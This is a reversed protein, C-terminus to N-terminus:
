NNYWEPRLFKNDIIYDSYNDFIYKEFYSKSVIQKQLTTLENLAINSARTTFKCYYLYADYISINSYVPNSSVDNSEFSNYQMQIHEKMNELAVQIDMQKDWLTCRIGSIFKDREVEVTPHYYYILDLLQKDNYNNSLENNMECWKKYLIVLEEIEFDSETEDVIITENWFQLFRQISPLYKSCVGQFTDNNENYYTQLKYIVMTKLQNMFIVSPLQKNELFQKWLYQMNKWTIQTTRSPIGELSNIFLPQPPSNQLPTHTEDIYESIFENVLDRPVTNKVSFVSTKLEDDNCHSEAYEDSSNYRNSYHCAVCLIDIMSTKLLNSWTSENKISENMQLVRFDKYDHDHYKYKFTQSLQLGVLMVSLNNMHRIFHKAHPTIFHILHTYKKLLNDGIVCLFYKAECRTKFVQGILGDLVYQITDSEPISNLLYNDKIRKMVSIKTKHKWSMLQRDRSISTLVHHLIDDESYIKYHLGDYIFFNTTTAVYFYQNSNLFSHIFTDQENTLEEMRAVRQEHAQKMNVLINPLQNCIYSHLKPHMYADNEYLDYLNDIVERLAHKTFNNRPSNM